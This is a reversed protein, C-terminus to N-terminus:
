RGDGWSGRRGRRSDYRWLARLQTLGSHGNISQEARSVGPVAHAELTQDTISVRRERLARPQQIGIQATQRESPELRTHLRDLEPQSPCPGLQQTAARPRLARDDTPPQTTIVGINLMPEPQGEDGVVSLDPEGACHVLWGIGDRLLLRAPPQTWYGGPLAAPDCHHDARTLLKITPRLQGCGGEVVHLVM